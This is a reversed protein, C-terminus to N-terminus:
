ASGYVRRPAVPHVEPHPAPEGTTVQREVMKELAAAIRAMLATQLQMEALALQADTLPVPVPPISKPDVAM